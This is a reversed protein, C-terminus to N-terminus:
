CEYSIKVTLILASVEALDFLILRYSYNNIQKLLNCCRDMVSPDVYAAFTAGSIKLLIMLSNLRHDYVIPQFALSQLIRDRVDELKVYGLNVLHAILNVRTYFECLQKSTPGERGAPIYDLGYRFFQELSERCLRVHLGAAYTSLAPDLEADTIFRLLLHINPHILQGTAKYQKTGNYEVIGSIRYVQPNTILNSMMSPSSLIDNDLQNNSVGGHAAGTEIWFRYASVTHDYNEETLGYLLKMSSWPTDM